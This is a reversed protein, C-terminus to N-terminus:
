PKNSCWRRVKFGAKGLLGILQDRVKLAEDDTELLTLVDEMQLLITAVATPYDEQHDKAHQRVVYQAMNPSARDGFMLRVARDKKAMIFQSFMEKLDAILAVPNNGLRLLVEFVDQQLKPGLLM